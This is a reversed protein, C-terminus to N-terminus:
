LIRSGVRNSCHAMPYLNRCLTTRINTLLRPWGTENNAYMICVLITKANLQKRLEDIDALGDRQVPLFTIDAGSQILHKCTDLVARHEASAAIIHNGKERYAEVIGKIALNNSETAGSTFIIESPGAGIFEAVKIRSQDVLKEAEWGFPHTLSSANGFQANFCPIMAELVRPDVPTTAHHDMYIPLKM